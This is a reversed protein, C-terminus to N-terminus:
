KKRVMWSAVICIPYFVILLPIGIYVFFIFPFLLIAYFMVLLRVFSYRDINSMINRELFYAMGRFPDEPNSITFYFAPIVFLIVIIVAITILLFKLSNSCSGTSYEVIYSSIKKDKDPYAKTKRAEHAIRSRYDHDGEFFGQKPTSGHNKLTYENAEKRIRIDYAENSEFFGQKLSEGKLTKVTHNNAEQHIRDRYSEDSEFWGQSPASGSLNKVTHESAEQSIRDRYGEDSEFFGQRPASGTSDKITKENAENAIRSQYAEDSEFFGQGSGM